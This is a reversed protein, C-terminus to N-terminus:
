REAALDYDRDLYALMGLNNVTTAVDMHETGLLEEQIRLARGFFEEAQDLEGIQQYHLAMNSCDQALEMRDTESDAARIDFARRYLPLADQPRGLSSYFQGLNNLSIVLRPDNAELTEARELATQFLEAAEEYRQERYATKAEENIQEWSRPEACGGLWALTLLPVVIRVMWQRSRNSGGTM